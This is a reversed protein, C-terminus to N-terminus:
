KIAYIKDARVFRNSYVMSIKGFVRVDAYSYIPDDYAWDGGADDSIFVSICNGDDCIRATNGNSKKSIKEVNGVFEVSKGENMIHLNAIETKEYQLGGPWLYLLLIGVLAIILSFAETKKSSIPIKM